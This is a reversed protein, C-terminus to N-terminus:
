LARGSEVVTVSDNSSLEVQFSKWVPEALGDVILEIEWLGETSMRALGLLGATGNGSSHKPQQDAALADVQAAKIPQLSFSKPSNADHHHWARGKIEIDAIKGPETGTIDVTVARYGRDDAIGSVSLRLDIGLRKAASRKRQETDWDLANSHYDPVIAVSSDGTALRIAVIGIVIQLGLFFVIFSVWFRKARREVDQIDAPLLSDTM